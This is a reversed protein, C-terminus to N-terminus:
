DIFLLDYNPQKLSFCLDSKSIKEEQVIKWQAKNIQTSRIACVCIKPYSGEEVVCFCPRITGCKSCKWPIYNM